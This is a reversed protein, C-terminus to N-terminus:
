DTLISTRYKRVASGHALTQDEVITTKGQPVTAQDTLANDVESSLRFETNSPKNYGLTTVAKHHNV